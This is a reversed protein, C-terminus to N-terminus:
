NPEFDLQAEVAATTCLFLLQSLLLGEDSNAPLSLLEPPIVKIVQTTAKQLLSEGRRREKQEKL